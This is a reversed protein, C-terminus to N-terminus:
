DGEIVVVGAIDGDWRAEVVEFSQSVAACIHDDGVFVKVSSSGTSRTALNPVCEIVTWDQVIHVKQVLMVDAKLQEELLIRRLGIRRM